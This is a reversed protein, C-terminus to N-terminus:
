WQRGNRNPGLQTGLIGKEPWPDVRDQDSGDGVRAPPTEEVEYRVTVVGPSDKAHVTRVQAKVDRGEHGLYDKIRAVDADLTRKALHAAV